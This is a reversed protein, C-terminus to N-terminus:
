EAADNPVDIEERHYRETALEAVTRLAAVLDDGEDLAYRKRGDASEIADLIGFGDLPDLAEHVVTQDVGAGAAIRAVSLPESAYFLTAIVRARVRNAFLLALGNNEVLRTYEETSQEDM